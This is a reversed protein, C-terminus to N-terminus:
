RGNSTPTVTNPAAYTANMARTSIGMYIDRHSASSALPLCYRDSVWPNQSTRDRQITVNSQSSHRVSIGQIDSYKLTPTQHLIARTWERRKAACGVNSEGSSFACP